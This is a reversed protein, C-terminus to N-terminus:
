YVPPKPNHHRYTALMRQFYTSLRILMFYFILSVSAVVLHIFVTFWQLNQRWFFIPGNYAVYVLDLITVHSLIVVFLLKAQHRKIFTLPLLNLPQRLLLL